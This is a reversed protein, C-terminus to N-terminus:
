SSIKSYNNKAISGHEVTHTGFLINMKNFSINSKQFFTFLLLNKVSLIFIYFVFYLKKLIFTGTSFCMDLKKLNKKCKM